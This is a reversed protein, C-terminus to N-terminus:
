HFYYYLTFVWQIKHLYRQIKLRPQPKPCYINFLDLLPNLTKTRHTETRFLKTRQQLQVTHLHVTHLQVSFHLFQLDYRSMLSFVVTM